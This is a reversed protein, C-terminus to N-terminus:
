AVLARDHSFGSRSSRRCARDGWVRDGRGNRASFVRKRMGTSTGKASNGKVGVGARDRAEVARPEDRVRLLVTEADCGKKSPAAQGSFRTPSGSCRWTDDAAWSLTEDAAVSIPRGQKGRPMYSQRRCPRVHCRYRWSTSFEKLLASELRGRRTTTTPLAGCSWRSPSGNM